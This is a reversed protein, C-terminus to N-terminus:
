ASLSLSNRLFNVLAVSGALLLNRVPLLRRNPIVFPKAISHWDSRFFRRHM